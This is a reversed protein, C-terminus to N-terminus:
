SLWIFTSLTHYQIRYFTSCSNSTTKVQELPTHTSDSHTKVAHHLLKTQFKYEQPVYILWRHNREWHAATSCAPSRRQVQILELKRGILPYHSMQDDSRVTLVGKGTFAPMFAFFSTKTDKMSTFKTNLGRELLFFLFYKFFNNSILNNTLNGSRQAWVRSSCPRLTCNHRPKYFYVSRITLQAVQVM